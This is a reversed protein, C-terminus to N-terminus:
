IIFRLGITLMGFGEGYFHHGSQSYTYPGGTTVNYKKMFEEKPGPPACMQHDESNYFDNDGFVVALLALIMLAIFKMREVKSASFTLM